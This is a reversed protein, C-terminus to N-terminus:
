VFYDEWLDLSVTDNQAAQLGWLIQATFTVTYLHKAVEQGKAGADPLLHAGRHAIIVGVKERAYAPLRTHGITPTSITQIEDGVEFKPGTEIPRDFKFNKTAHNALVQALSESAPQVAHEGNIEGAILEEATCIGADIMAAMETQAWSDFYSRSLYDDAPINERVHRWWDINIGPSRSSRSIAWMRGEYDAHFPEEPENADIAGYGLKGGLDHIGDM